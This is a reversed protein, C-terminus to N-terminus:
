DNRAFWARRMKVCERHRVGATIEVGAEGLANLAEVTYGGYRKEPPKLDGLDAHRAGMVMGGRIVIEPTM